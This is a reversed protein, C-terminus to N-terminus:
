KVFLKILWGFLSKIEEESNVIEQLSTNEQTLAEIAEQIATEDAENAVQTMLQQLSQIRLQNQEILQELNKIAKYDPGFLSKALNGKAEIEGLHIQIQDQAQNQVRAIERVQDGIGGSTRVQLLEQAKQAVISMHEVANPNKNELGVGNGSETGEQESTSVQLNQEEGMNQTSVQNQNKVQNGTPSAISSEQVNQSGTVAAKAFSEKSLIVTMLGLVFLALLATYKKKM